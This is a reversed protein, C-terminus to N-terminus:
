DVGFGDVTESYCDSDVGFWDLAQWWGVCVVVYICVVGWYGV